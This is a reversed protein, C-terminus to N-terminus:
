GPPLLSWRLFPVSYDFRFMADDDEVYNQTLLNYLEEAEADDNLNLNAWNYGQPLPFETDRVDALAKVEIPKDLQDEDFKEHLKPVPQSDWFV